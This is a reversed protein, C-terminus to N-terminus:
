NGRGQNRGGQTNGGRGGSGRGSAVGSINRNDPTLAANMQITTMLHSVAAAFDSRLDQIAMITQKAANLSQDKIGTLLDRVRKDEPIVEDNQRLDQYAEQHINVYTDFSFRKKEGHYKANAIAAYASEKVRDRAASGEYYALMALWAARGNRTNSYQKMWPYAPGLSSSTM